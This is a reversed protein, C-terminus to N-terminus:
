KSDTLWNKEFVEFDADPDDWFSQMSDSYWQWNDVGGDELAALAAASTWIGHFEKAEVLVYKVGDIMETKYAM